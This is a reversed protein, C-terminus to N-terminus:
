LTLEYQRSSWETEKVFTLGSKEMTQWSAINHRNAFGVLKRIGLQKAEQIALKLMVEGLGKGRCLPRVVYSLNGGDTKIDFAVTIHGIPFDRLYMIFTIYENQSIEGSLWKRWEDYSMHHCPNGIGIEEAPIARYMEYEAKGMKDDLKHLYHKSM